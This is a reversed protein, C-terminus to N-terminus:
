QQAETSMLVLQVRDRAALKLLLHGIHAKLTGRSIFLEREIEANTLGQGILALVERERPTLRELWAPTAPAATGTGGGAGGQPVQQHGHRANQPAGLGPPQPAQVAQAGLARQVVSALVSPSLIQEGRALCRVARTLEEPQADKLLFGAAGARLAGYPYDDLEFMTLVCVRVGALAPDAVIRRTAELGDMVPMRIDLLAVDPVLERCLQVAERGDSALGVVEIGDQAGLLHALSDRVLRQDDAILM